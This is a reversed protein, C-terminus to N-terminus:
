ILYLGIFFPSFLCVKGFAGKGIARHLDFHFLNVEADFDIPDSFCCFIGSMRPRNSRFFLLPFYLYLIPLPSTYPPPVFPRLCLVYALCVHFTSLVFPLCCVASAFCPDAFCASGEVHRFYVVGM